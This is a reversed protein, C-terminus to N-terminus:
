IPDPPIEVLQCIVQSVLLKIMKISGLTNSSSRLFFTPVHQPVKIAWALEKWVAIEFFFDSFTLPGQSLFCSFLFNQARPSQDVEPTRTAWNTHRCEQTPSLSGTTTRNGAPGRTLRLYHGASLCCAGVFFFHHNASRTGLPLILPETVLALWGYSGFTKTALEVILVQVSFLSWGNLASVDNRTKQHHWKNPKTKATYM